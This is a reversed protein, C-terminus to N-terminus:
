GCNLKRGKRKKRKNVQIAKLTNKTMQGKRTSLRETHWHTHEMDVGKSKGRM